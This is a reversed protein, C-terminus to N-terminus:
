DCKRRLSQKPTKKNTKRRIVSSLQHFWINLLALVLKIFVVFIELFLLIYQKIFRKWLKFVTNKGLSVNWNLVNWAETTTDTTPLKDLSLDTLNM